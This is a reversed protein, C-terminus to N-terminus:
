RPSRGASALPTYTRDVDAGTVTVGNCELWAHADLHRADVAVGLTVTADLAARRLLCYGAIAQPLCAAPWIRSARRIAAACEAPTM